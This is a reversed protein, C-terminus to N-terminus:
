KVVTFSTAFGKNPGATLLIDYVGAPLGSVDLQETYQGTGLRGLNRTMFVKGSQDLVRPTLDLPQTTHFNLNLVDKAPNPYTNLSGVSAVPRLGTILQASQAQLVFQSTQEEIFIAAELDDFEEVSHETALDIINDPTGDAPLRYDTTERSLTPTTL